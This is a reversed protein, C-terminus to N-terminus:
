KGASRSAVKPAAPMFGVACSLASAGVLFSYLRM